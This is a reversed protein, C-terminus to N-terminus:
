RSPLLGRVREITDAEAPSKDPRYHKVRAFRLACGSEYRTSHQVDNFAIEVVLEPRVFVVHGDRHTERALLQATQWALVEDTLGKFTKGIMAFTGDAERAGLWLNSLWPTRRGSGWEVALVVLDLTHAPKVKLWREGRHGAEYPSAPDKVLIGEHGAAIARDYFADAADADSIVAREIRASDPLVRRMAADRETLPRDIWPAGDLWLLDFFVPTLVLSRDGSRRSFRSMTTQFSHPRGDPRLALVEGDLVIEDVPLAGVLALVEDVQATVELLNRSWVRVESGRRHVQIRAGDLKVDVIATGTRGVAEAPDAATEALMPGIPRFLELGVAALAAEGGDLAVIATAPLDGSLMWARQVAALTVGAALAVAAALIGENAGQRVEGLVLRVIWEQEPRTCGRLLERLREVRRATSGAGSEAAVATLAADLDAVTRTGIAASEPPFVAKLTAYGVGIRGQPLVGALWAVVPRQEDAELAGLVAALAAIKDRRGRKARVDDSAAVVTALLTAV